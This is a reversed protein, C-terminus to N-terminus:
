PIPPFWKDAAKAVTAAVPTMSPRTRPGPPLSTPALPAVHQQPPSPKHWRTNASAKAARRKQETRTWEYTLRPNHIRGPQEPHKVFCARVQRFDGSNEEDWEALDKLDTIKSPLSCHEHDWQQSLLMVYAWKQAPTMKKVKPSLLFDKFYFPFWPLSPM